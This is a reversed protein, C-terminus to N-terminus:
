CTTTALTFTYASCFKGDTTLRPVYKSNWLVSSTQTFGSAGVNYAVCAALCAAINNTGTTDPTSWTIGTGVDCPKDTDNKLETIASGANDIQDSQTENLAMFDQAAKSAVRAALWWTYLPSATTTNANIWTNMTTETPAAWTTLYERNDNTPSADAVPWGDTGATRGGPMRWGSGGTTATDADRATTAEVVAYEAGRGQTIADSQSFRDLTGAGGNKYADYFTGWTSPWTYIDNAAGTPVQYNATTAQSTAETHAAVALEVINDYFAKERARQEKLWAYKSKVGEHYAVM